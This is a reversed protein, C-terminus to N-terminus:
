RSKEFLKELHYKSTGIASQYIIMQDQDNSNDVVDFLRHNLLYENKNVDHWTWGFDIGMMDNIIASIADDVASFGDQDHRVHLKEVSLRVLRVITELLVVHRAQKYSLRGFLVDTDVPCQELSMATEKKV